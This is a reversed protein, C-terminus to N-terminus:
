PSSNTGWESLDGASECDNPDSSEMEEGTRMDFLRHMMNYPGGPWSSVVDSYWRMGELDEYWGNKWTGGPRKLWEITREHRISQNVGCFSAQASASDVISYADELRFICADGGWTPIAHRAVDGNDAYPM